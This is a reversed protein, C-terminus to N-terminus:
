AACGVEHTSSNSGKVTSLLYRQSPIFFLGERGGIACHSFGVLAAGLRELAPKLVINAVHGLRRNADEDGEGSGGSGKGAGSNEYRFALFM